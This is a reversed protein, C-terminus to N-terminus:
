KWVLAFIAGDVAERVDQPYRFIPQPLLRLETVDQGDKMAGQFERAMNRMQTLRAKQSAAPQPWENVSKFEVGPRTPRWERQGGFRVPQLPQRSLSHFEHFVRIDGSQFQHSGICGILEPRGAHTWVFVAGMYNDANTWHLVAPKELQLPQKQQEDLFLEYNAAERAYFPFLVEKLEAESAAPAQGVLALSWVLGVLANM